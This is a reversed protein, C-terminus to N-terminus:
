VGDNRIYKERLGSVPSNILCLIILISYILTSLHRCINEIANTYAPYIVHLHAWICNWRNSITVNSACTKPRVHSADKLTFCIFQCLSSGQFHSMFLFFSFKWSLSLSLCTHISDTLGTDLNWRWSRMSSSSSASRTCFVLTPAPRVYFVLTGKTYPTARTVSTRKRKVGERM